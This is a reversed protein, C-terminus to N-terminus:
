EISLSRHRLPTTLTSIYKLDHTANRTGDRSRDYDHQESQLNTM